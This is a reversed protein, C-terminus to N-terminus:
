HLYSCVCVHIYWLIYVCTNTIYMYKKYIYTYIPMTNSHEGIVWFVPTWDWTLGYWLSLFNYKIGWQKINLMKLYPDYLPAPFHTACEMVSSFSGETQGWDHKGVKHINVTHIYTHIYTHTYIYIYIYIYICPAILLNKDSHYWFSFLM